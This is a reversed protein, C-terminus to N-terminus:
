AVRNRKENKLFSQINKYIEDVLRERAEISAWAIHPTIVSNDLDLLEYSPPPEKELVDTGFYSDKRTKLFETLDKENIIGGRGLNIVIAKEKLLQLNNKNLLDKTQLNLPSHISVIDSKKLLTELDVQKFDECSNKGSTSYYSVDCGFAEAITAVKKGISGLGIVGWKKGSLESYPKSINTFIPSKDWQKSGFETYFEMERAIHFYLAFTHEVVSDTSYGAVNTVGISLDKAAPLDINNVGTAAVCILKLNKCQSLIEKTLLVKNTIVIDVDKVRELTEEKSTTDYFIVEGLTKVNDLPVDITSYDLVA